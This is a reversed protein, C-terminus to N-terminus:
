SLFREAITKSVALLVGNAYERCAPSGPHDPQDGLREQHIRERTLADLALRLGVRLGQEAGARYIPLRVIRSDTPLTQSM